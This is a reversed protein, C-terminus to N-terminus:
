EPAPQGSRDGPGRLGDIAAAFDCLRPNEFLSRVSIQVAFTARLEALVRVAVMSHGGIELFNDDRLITQRELHRRWAEAVIRETESRLDGEGSGTGAAPAAARALAVRDVKGSPMLPFSAVSVLHSPLMHAPLWDALHARVADGDVAAAGSPCLCAVLGFGDGQGNGDVAALETPSLVTADDIGPCRRLAREIEALAVRMGRIKIVRDRRGAFVINGDPRRHGRDGTRYLRAGPQRSFPDPVFAAATLGPNGRYGHGVATGGICIEGEVGDPVPRLREDLVEVRAGDIAVGIPPDSAAEADISAITSCITAETPGYANCFRRGAAWHRVLPVHCAEGASILVRVGQMPQQPLTALYSPTLTAVTIGSAAIAEAVAAPTRGSRCLCVLSGGCLLGLTMEWISADFGPSAMALARDDTRLSFYRGQFQALAALSRHSIEVGKPAGTSGSTFILYALDDPDPGPLPLPEAASADPMAADLRLLAPAVIASPVTGAALLLRSGSDSLMQQMREPPEDPDIPHYVAGIALVALFAEVLAVSPRAYLSVVDGRGVGSALLRRALADRGGALAAFSIARTEDSVALRDPTRAGITEFLDLITQGTADGHRM